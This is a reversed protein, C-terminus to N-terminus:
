QPASARPIVVPQGSWVKRGQFVQLRADMTVKRHLIAPLGVGDDMAVNESIGASVGSFLSKLFAIDQATSLPIVVPQSDSLVNRGHFVQLRVAIMVNMQRYIPDGFSVLVCNLRAVLFSVSRGSYLVSVSLSKRWAIAQPRCLPIMVPQSIDSPVTSNRGHFPQLRADAM